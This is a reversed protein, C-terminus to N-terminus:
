KLNMAVVKHVFMVSLVYDNMKINQLLPNFLFGFIIHSFLDFLCRFTALITIKSLEVRLSTSFGFKGFPRVVPMELLTSRVMYKANRLQASFFDFIVESSADSVSFDLFYLM